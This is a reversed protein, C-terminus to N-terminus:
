LIVVHMVEPGHVGLTLKMEIDGTRSPGSIFTATMAGEATFAERLRPAADALTAVITDAYLICVHVRPLASVLRDADQRTIEVISGTEAVGFAAMTVGIRADDVADPLTMGAFPSELVTVGRADCIARVVALADDPLGAVALSNTPYHSHIGELVPGLEDITSIRHVHGALRTFVEAFDTEMHETEHPM